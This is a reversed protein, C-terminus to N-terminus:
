GVGHSALNSGLGATPGAGCGTRKKRLDEGGQRDLSDVLQAVSTSVGWYIKKPPRDQASGQAALALVSLILPLLWSGRITKAM